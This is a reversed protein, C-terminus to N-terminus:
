IRKRELWREWEAIRWARSEYKNELEREEKLCCIEFPTLQENQFLAHGCGGWRLPADLSIVGRRKVLLPLETEFENEIDPREYPPRTTPVFINITKLKSYFRRLWMPRREIIGIGGASIITKRLLAVTTRGIGVADAIQKITEGGLILSYARAKQISSIM